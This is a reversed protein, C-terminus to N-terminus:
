LTLWEIGAVLFNEPALATGVGDGLTVWAAAPPPEAALASGAMLLPVAALAIFVAAAGRVM